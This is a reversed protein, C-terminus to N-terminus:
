YLDFLDLDQDLIVNKQETDISKKQKPFIILHM